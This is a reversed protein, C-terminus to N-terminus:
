GMRAAAPPIAGSAIPTPSSLERPQGDKRGGVRQAIAQGLDAFVSPPPPHGMSLAKDTTRRGVYTGGVAAAALAIPVLAGLVQAVGTMVAAAHHGQGDFVAAVAAVVGIVTAIGALVFLLSAVYLATPRAWRVYRDSSIVELRQTKQIELQLRNELDSMRAQFAERAERDQRLKGAVESQDAAGTMESAADVVQKAVRGANDGAIHEVLRPAFEKVLTLAFPLLALAM